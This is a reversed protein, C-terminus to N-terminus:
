ERGDERIQRLGERLAALQADIVIIEQLATNRMGKLQERRAEDTVMDAHRELTQARQDVVIRQRNLSRMQDVLQAITSVRARSRDRSVVPGSFDALAQRIALGSRPLGGFALIRSASERTLPWIAARDDDAAGAEVRAWREVTIDGGISDMEVLPEGVGRSWREGFAYALDVKNPRQANPLDDFRGLRVEVELTKDGRKVVLALLDGPDRSLIAWRLDDQTRMRRGNLVQISDLPELVDRAPFGEITNAIVVGDDSFGQFQVGMGALPRMDFLRRGVQRLRYVQEPTLGDSRALREVQGLTIGPLAAIEREASEREALRESNMAELLADLTEFGPQAHAALPVLIM